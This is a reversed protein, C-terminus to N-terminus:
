KKGDQTQNTEPIEIIIRTGKGPASDVTVHANALIRLRESANKLGVSTSKVASPDFGVGNDIVEVVHGGPVARSKLQVFGGEVTETQSYKFANEIFPQLSLIPLSLDLDRCDLLFRIPKERRMNELEVYNNINEIERKMPVLADEGADVNARLHRSFAALAKKGLEMDKEYAHQVSALSNFIFHPKIQARLSDAKIADHERELKLADVVKRSNEVTIERYLVIVFLIMPIMVYAISQEMGAVTLNMLDFATCLVYMAASYLFLSYTVNRVPAARFNRVLPYILGILCACEILPAIVRYVTGTLAIYVVVAVITAASVAVLVPLMRKVAGSRYFHYLLSYILLAAAIFNADIMINYTHLRMFALLRWYVAISFVTMVTVATMVLAFSYDRRLSPLGFNIIFSFAFLAVTLGLIIFGINNTLYPSPPDADRTSIMLRPASTLGGERCSSVEFVIELTTEDTVVYTLMVEAEGDSWAEGTKNQSGYSYVLEGNVFGRFAGVFNNNLFYIPTGPKLGKVFVRYSAYGTNDLRKGALVTETYRHPVTVIADPEANEIGDTVLWKDYFFEYTGQMHQKLYKGDTDTDSFDIVCNKIDPLGQKSNMNDNSKVLFYATIFLCVAAVVVAGLSFAISKIKPSLKRMKIIIVFGARFSLTRM